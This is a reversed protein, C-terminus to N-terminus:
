TCSPSLPSGQRCYSPLPHEPNNLTAWITATIRAILVRLGDLTADQADARRRNLEAIFVPNHHRLRSLNERSMNALAAAETVTKGKIMANIAVIHRLNGDDTTKQRRM